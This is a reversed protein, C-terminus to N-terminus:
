SGVQSFFGNITGIIPKSNCICSLLHVKYVQDKVRSIRSFQSQFNTTLNVWLKSISQSLSLSLSENTFYGLSNSSSGLKTSVLSSINLRSSFLVCSFFVPSWVLKQGLNIRLPLIVGLKPNQKKSGQTTQEYSMNKM